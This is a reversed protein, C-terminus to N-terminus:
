HTGAILSEPIRYRDEAISVEVLGGATASRAADAGDAAQLARASINVRRFGGDPHRLTIVREGKVENHELACEQAFDRSGAPACAVLQANAPAEPEVGAPEVMATASGHGAGATFPFRYRDRDIRIELLDGQVVMSAYDAGDAPALGHGDQVTVFRRFGGDVHRVILVLQGDEAVREVVCESTFSEAGNLACGIRDGAIGGGAQGSCAILAMPLVM